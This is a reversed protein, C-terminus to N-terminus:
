TSSYEVTNGAVARRCAPPHPALRHAIRAEARIAIGGVVRALAYHVAEFQNALHVVIAHQQVFARAVAAPGDVEVGLEIRRIRDVKGRHQLRQM